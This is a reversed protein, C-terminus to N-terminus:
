AFVWSGHLEDLMDDLRRIPHRYKVTINDIARCDVCIRWTGDKTPVLLMLVACPSRSERVCGKELLEGVQRHLEKTDM